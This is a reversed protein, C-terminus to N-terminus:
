LSNLQKIKQIFEQKFKSEFPFKKNFFNLTFNSLTKFHLINGILHTNIKFFIDEPLIIQDWDLDVYEFAGEKTQLSVRDEQQILYLIDIHKHGMFESRWKEEQEMSKLVERRYLCYELAIDIEEKNSPKGLFIDPFFESQSKSFFQIDYASYLVIPINYNNDHIYSALMESTENASLQFDTIVIDPKEIEILKYTDKLNSKPALAIYGLGRLIIQLYKAIFPDDEIIAIRIEKV